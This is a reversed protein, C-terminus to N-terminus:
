LLGGDTEFRLCIIEDVGEWRLERLVIKIDDESCDGEKLNGSWFQALM